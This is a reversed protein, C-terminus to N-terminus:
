EAPDPTKVIEALGPIVVVPMAADPDRGQELLKVKAELLAIEAKQQKLKLILSKTKLDYDPDRHAWRTPFRRELFWSSSQWNNVGSRVVALADREAICSAEEVEGLFTAHPEKGAAGDKLWKYFTSKPLGALRVAQEVYMGEVLSAAIKARLEPTLTNLQKSAM